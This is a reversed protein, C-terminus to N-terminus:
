KEPDLLDQHKSITVTLESPRMIGQFWTLKDVRGHEDAWRNILSNKSEGKRGKIINTKNFLVWQNFGANNAVRAIFVEGTETKMTAGVGTSTKSRGKGPKKCDPCSQGAEVARGCVPCDRADEPTNEPDLPTGDIRELKQDCRPCCYFDDDITSLLSGNSGSWGCHPCTTTRFARDQVNVMPSVFGTTLNIECLWDGEWLKFAPDRDAFRAGLSWGDNRVFVVDPEIGYDRKAQDPPCGYTVVGGEVKVVVRTPGDGGSEKHPDIEIGWCDTGADTIKEWVKAHPFERILKILNNADKIEFKM